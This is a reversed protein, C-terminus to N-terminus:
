DRIFNTYTIEEQEPPNIGEKKGAEICKLYYAMNKGMMELLQVGEKDEYLNEINPGDSHIM